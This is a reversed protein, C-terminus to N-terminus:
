ISIVCGPKVPEALGRSADFTAGGGGAVVDREDAVGRNADLKGGGGVVVVVVVVVVLLLVADVALVLPTAVLRVVVDFLASSLEIVLSGATNAAM